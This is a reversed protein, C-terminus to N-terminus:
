SFHNQLHPSPETTLSSRTGEKPWQACLVWLHCVSMCLPLVGMCMFITLFTFYQKIENEKKKSTKTINPQEGLKIYLETNPHSGQFCCSM